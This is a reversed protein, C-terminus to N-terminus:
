DCTYVKVVIEIQMEPLGLRPVEFVNWVPKRDPMYEKIIKAMVDLAEVSLPVHYSSVSYVEEWGNGGASKLATDVNKFAQTIHKTLDNEFGFTANRFKNALFLPPSL